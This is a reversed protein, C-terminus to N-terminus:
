GNILTDQISFIHCHMYYDRFDPRVTDLFLKVEELTFPQINTRPVKLPKIDRWPSTFEFRDAAERLIQRLPMLIHNIRDTSLNANKRSKVKALSSRFQLIEPKTIHSVERDGFEPILYLTIIRSVTDYHSARWEIQKEELWQQAFEAFFPTGARLQKLQREQRGFENARTSNPFYKIYEFTGLTIEAEIRKLITELRRRNPATNDLGTKERCRKGKYRFDFFLKGARNRISAM